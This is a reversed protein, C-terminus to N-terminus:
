PPMDEVPESGPDRYGEEEEHNPPPDPQNEEDNVPPPAISRQPDPTAESESWFTPTPSPSAPSSPSPTPTPTSDPTTRVSKPTRGGGILEDDAACGAMGALALSLGVFGWALRRM